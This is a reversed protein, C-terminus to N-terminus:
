GVVFFDDDKCIPMCVLDLHLRIDIKADLVDNPVEFFFLHLYIRVSTHIGLIYTYVVYMCLISRVYM